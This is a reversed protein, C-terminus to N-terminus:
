ADCALWLRKIENDTLIRDRPREESARKIGVTPSVEIVDRQVLWAFFVSLVALARNAAIPRDEAIKEILEIVDRRKIDHVLRGRWAPVAVDDIVHRYQRETHARKKSAHRTLFDAALKEVNDAARAAAEKKAVAAADFKLAAPDRGQALELLAATAARR